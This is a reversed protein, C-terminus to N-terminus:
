ILGQAPIDCRGGVCGGEGRRGVEGM